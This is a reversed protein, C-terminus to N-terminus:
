TCRTSAWSKAPPTFTKASPISKHEVAIKVASAEAIGM